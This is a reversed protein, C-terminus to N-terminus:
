EGIEKSFDHTCLCLGHKILWGLTRWVREREDTPTLDMIERVSVEGKGSVVDLMLQILPLPLLLDPVFLNMDHKVIAALNTPTPPCCLRTNENLTKSPFSEFTRLLNLHDLAAADWGIPIPTQHTATKARLGLERWLDEYAPIIVRWDYHEKARAAGNAGMQARLSDDEILTVFARAIAGIDLATSQAAAMLTKGYHKSEFSLAAMEQGASSPPTITPILFGDTEHRVGDRYGDWDAVVVPLGGAMAELPTLGFSEQVNDILSTFIDGAAWLGDPFRPDTNEIIDWCLTEAFAHFLSQYRERMEEAPMYYGYMVLRVKRQTTKAAERAALLLPLPHAKTAFNLRGVFLIVIEDDTINLAARQAQRKEPTRRAALKETDLGLPITPTEPPAPMAAAGFRHRLYDSQAEWIALAAKQIARSPCILADGPGTPAILINALTQTVQDGSLSHVLGCIAHSTKTRARRWAPRTIDPDPVFLTDLLGLKMPDQAPNFPVCCTIPECNRLTRVLDFFHAHSAADESHCILRPERTHSIWARMFDEIAISLGLASKRQEHLYDIAVTM